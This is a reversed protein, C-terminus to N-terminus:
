EQVSAAGHADLHVLREDLLANIIQYVALMERPPTTVGGCRRFHDGRRASILVNHIEVLPALVRHRITTIFVLTVALIILAMFVM